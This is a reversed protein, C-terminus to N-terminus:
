GFIKSIGLIDLLEYCRGVLRKKKYYLWYKSRKKKEKYKIYKEKDRLVLIREYPRNGATFEPYAYGPELAMYDDRDIIYRNIHSEDHWEAMIGNEDDRHINKSLEECMDFFAQPQGGMLCGQVYYVGKGYPVYALSKKNRDYNFYYNKLGFFGPHKVFLLPKSFNGFEKAEVQKNCLYNANFFFIYGVDKIMDKVKLFMDFRYLTNGPWGLNQQEILHVSEVRNSFLSVRDTFVYYEKKCELLFNREFTNYFDDWFCIYDGIGIYLIAITEM